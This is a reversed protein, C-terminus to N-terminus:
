RKTEDHLPSAAITVAMVQEAGYIKLMKACENLTAGSTVVDDVLLYRGGEPAATSKVDFVGLLNGQRERWRLEKQPRTDYIKVLVDLLPVSLQVSLAKALQWTPNQAHQRKQRSSMPVPIIGDFREGAYERSIVQAMEAAYFAADLATPMAKFRLVGRKAAGEYTYVSVSREFMRRHKQCHCARKERGCLPCIPPCIRLRKEQTRCQECLEAEPKIVTGCFHCREPFFVALFRRWFRSKM